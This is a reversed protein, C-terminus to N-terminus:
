ILLYNKETNKKAVSVFKKVIKKYNILTPEKRM